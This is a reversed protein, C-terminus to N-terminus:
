RPTKGKQGNSRVDARVAFMPPQTEYTTNKHAIQIVFIATVILSPMSPDGQGSPSTPIAAQTTKTTRTQTTTFHLSSPPPPPHQRPRRRRGCGAPVGWM